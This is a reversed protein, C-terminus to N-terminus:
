TLINVLPIKGLGSAMSILAQEQLMAQQEDLAAQAVDADTLNSISTQLTTSESGANTLFTQLSSENVGVNGSATAISQVSSQLQSLTASVATKNGANLANALATLAGIAGNASDGFIGQGAFTSQIRTGNSFTTYTNAADGLYNGTSDYAATNTQSGSFLYSGAYQTNGAGIVQTLISQVEGGLTSMESTNISGDAGQTAISIASNLWNSVSQLANDM